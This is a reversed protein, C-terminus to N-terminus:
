YIESCKGQSNCWNNCSRWCYFFLMWHRQVRLIKGEQWESNHSNVIIFYSYLLFLIRCCLKKSYFLLSVRCVEGTFEIIIEGEMYTRRTFLGRGHTASFLVGLSKAAKEKLIRCRTEIPLDTRDQTELSSSLSYIFSNSMDIRQKM